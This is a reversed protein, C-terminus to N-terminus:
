GIFMLAMWVLAILPPLFLGIFAPILYPRSEASTEVRLFVLYRDVVVDLRKVEERWTEILMWRGFSVWWWFLSVLLGFIGLAQVTSQSEPSSGISTFVSVLAAQIAIFFNSHQWFITLNHRFHEVVVKFVELDASTPPVEPADREEPPAPPGTQPTWAQRETDWRLWTGDPKEQWWFGKRLIPASM